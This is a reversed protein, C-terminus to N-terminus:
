WSHDGTQVFLRQYFSYNRFTENPVHVYARGDPRLVRAIEALALEYNSLWYIINSFVTAFGGSPLPLKTNADAELLEVYLETHKAKELLAQKHDLGVEIQYSAKTRVSPEAVSPDYHNYIDEGDFFRDLGGVHFFADYNPQYVGGARLFSFAGDGCGFDLIPRR